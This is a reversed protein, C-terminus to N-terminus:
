DINVFGNYVNELIINGNDGLIGQFIGIAEFFHCDAAVM